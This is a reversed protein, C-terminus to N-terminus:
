KLLVPPQKLLSMFESRPEMREFVGSIASTIVTTGLGTQVGRFAMCTHMAEVVVMCDRLGFKNLSSLITQTIEEQTHLGVSAAKVLRAFKSIGVVKCSPEPIYGISIHGFFPLLHHECLSFFPIHRVIVLNRFQQSDFERWEFKSQEAWQKYFMAVRRPTDKLGPSNVDYGLATILDAIAKEVRKVNVKVAV